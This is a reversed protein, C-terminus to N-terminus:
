DRREEIAREIEVLFAEIGNLQGPGLNCLGTINKFRRELDKVKREWEAHNMKEIGGIGDVGSPSLGVVARM